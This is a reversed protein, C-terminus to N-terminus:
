QLVHTDRKDGLRNYKKLIKIKARDGLEEKLKKKFRCSPSSPAAHLPLAGMREKGTRRRGYLKYGGTQFKKKSLVMVLLRTGRGKIAEKEEKEVVCCSFFIWTTDAGVKIDWDIFLM